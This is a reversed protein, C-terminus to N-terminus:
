TAGFGLAYSVAYGTTLAALVSTLTGILFYDAFAADKIEELRALSKIAIVLVVAEPHGVLVAAFVLARELWGIWKGGGALGKQSPRTGARGAELRNTIVGIVEGFGITVLVLAGAVLVVDPRDDSATELLDRSAGWELLLPAGIVAIPVTLWATIPPLLALAIAALAVALGRITALRDNLVLGIATAAVAGRIYWHGAVRDSVNPLLVAAGAGLGLSAVETLDM